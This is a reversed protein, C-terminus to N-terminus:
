GKRKGFNELTEAFADADAELLEFGLKEIAYEEIYADAFEKSKEELSKQKKSNIANIRVKALDDGVKRTVGFLVHTVKNPHKKDQKLFETHLNLDTKENIEQVSPDLVDRKWIAFKTYKGDGFKEYASAANMKYMTREKVLFDKISAAFAYLDPSYKHKLQLAYGLQFIARSKNSLNLLFGKVTDHLKLTIENTKYNIRARDVWRFIESQENDRVWFYKTAFSEIEKELLIRNKGGEDVGTLKFYDAISITVTKFETDDPGITSIMFFLLKKQQLSLAKAEKAIAQQVIAKDINVTQAKANELDLM